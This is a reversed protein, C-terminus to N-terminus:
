SALLRQGSPHTLPTSFLAWPIMWRLSRSKGGPVWGVYADMSFYIARPHDHSILSNQLSTKSFVLVQSEEPVDLEDLVAKLFKKAGAGGGNWKGEKIKRALSAVKDKSATASYHIPPLEFFDQAGATVAGAALVAWVHLILRKM